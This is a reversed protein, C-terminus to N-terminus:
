TIKLIQIPLHSHIHSHIYSKVIVTMQASEPNHPFIDLAQGGIDAIFVDDPVVYWLWWSDAQRTVWALFSQDDHNLNNCLATNSTFTPIKTSCTYLSYQRLHYDIGRFYALGYSCTAVKVSTVWWVPCCCSLFLVIFQICRTQHTIPKAQLNNKSHSHSHVHSHIYSKVIDWPSHPFIQLNNSLANNSRFTPTKTFCM